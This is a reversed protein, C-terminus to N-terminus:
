TGFARDGADGLGPVIYGKANVEEDIMGTYITLSPYDAGLKQLAPPAAVVSIIRTLDPTAGRKKLESMALMMTGGTALMPDLVLIRTNPDFQNPLTNLYFSAQLTEENRVLGLHYVSALPLLTQAGDLLALGARLIPVVVIPVEPNVMTVKCPALPTQVTLEENPLWDRMAEYTLWRGLETMASKFLPPPTSADRAVGLWHKVLPHPPVYVRLQLTM